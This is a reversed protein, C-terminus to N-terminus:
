CEGRCAAAYLDKHPGYKLRQIQRYTKGLEVAVQSISLGAKRLRGALIAFEPTSNFPKKRSWPRDAAHRNNQEVSVWRLNSVRNDTKIGNIHDVVTLNKPDPNFIFARGVLQNIRFNDTQNGSGERQLTVRHYGDDDFTSLWRYEHWSWVHGDNTVSYMSLGMFDLSRVELETYQLYENYYHERAAKETSFYLPDNPRKQVKVSNGSPSSRRWLQKKTSVDVFYGDDFLVVQPGGVSALTAADERIDGDPTVFM